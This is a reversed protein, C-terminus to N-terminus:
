SSIQEVYLTLDVVKAVRVKSGQPIHGTMSVAKWIEGNLQMRGDPNLADLTEGDKGLMGQIGTVPKARQARLGMGIVFLFFCAAIAVASVILTRSLSVVELSSGPRILMLSGILLAVIGGIALM